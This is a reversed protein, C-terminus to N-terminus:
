AFVDTDGGQNSNEPAQKPPKLSDAVSTQAENMSQEVSKAANGISSETAQMGSQEATQAAQNAKNVLGSAEQQTNLTSKIASSMASGVTSQMQQLLNSMHQDTYESAKQGSGIPAAQPSSTSKNSETMDTLPESQPFLTQHLGDQTAKLIGQQISELTKQRADEAQQRLLAVQKQFEKMEKRIQLGQTQPTTGEQGSQEM